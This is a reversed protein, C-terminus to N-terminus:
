EGSIGTEERSQRGSGARRQMFRGIPVAAAAACLAGASNAAFDSLDCSRGVHPQILEIAGSLLVAGGVLLIKGRRSPNFFLLLLAVEGFYFGFHILKDYHPIRTLWALWGSPPLGDGPALSGYLILASWLLLAAFLISRYTKRKMM